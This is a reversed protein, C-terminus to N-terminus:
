ILLFALTIFVTSHAPCGVCVCKLGTVNRRGQLLTWLSGDKVESGPAGWFSEGGASVVSCMKGVGPAPFRSTKKTEGSRSPASLRSSSGVAAGWGRTGRRGRCTGSEHRKRAERRGGRSSCRGPLPQTLGRRWGQRWVVGTTGLYINSSIWIYMECNWNTMEFDMKKKCKITTQNDQTSFHSWLKGNEKKIQGRKIKFVPHFLGGAEWEKGLQCLVAINSYLTSPIKSVM